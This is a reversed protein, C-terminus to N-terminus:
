YKYFVKGFRGKKSELILLYSGKRLRSIKIQQEDAVVEQEKLLKGELSYIKYVGQEVSYNNLRVTLKNSSPNPFISWDLDSTSVDKWDATTSNFDVYVAFLQNSARSLKDVDFTFFINEEDSDIGGYIYGVLTRQSKLKDLQLIGQTYLGDGSPIFEAGAGLFDDLDGMKYEKWVDNRDKSVVSITTVFPVDTDEILTHDDFYFQAMGGFFVTNMEDNATSYIPLHASHYQSLKQEFNPVEAFHKGKIEVANLWPIDQKYQFVGSFAAIGFSGDKFQQKCANYDRKHLLATDRLAEYFDISGDPKLTFRRIENTYEQEFGPGHDPGMPNYRGTFQQGGILYFTDQLHHLYGGTVAMRDDNAQTFYDSIKKGNVVADILPQYDVKVLHPHTIHDKEIASYGYGGTIYLVDKHQTFQMNTSQLQEQLQTSLSKLDTSHVEKKALDIVIIEKNNSSELFAEFPRRKHLGDTRGGLILVYEKHHAMVFSHKGPLSNIGIPELDIKFDAQAFVALNSFSFLLFYLLKNM